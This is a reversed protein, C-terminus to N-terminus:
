STVNEATQQNDGQAMNATLRNYMQMFEGLPIYICAADNPKPTHTSQIHFGIQGDEIWCHLQREHGKDSQGLITEM